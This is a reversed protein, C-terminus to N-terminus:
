ECACVRVCVYLRASDRERERKRGRADDPPLKCIRDSEFRAKLELVLEDEDLAALAALDSASGRVRQQGRGADAM